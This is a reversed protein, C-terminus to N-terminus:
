GWCFVPALGFFFVFFCGLGDVLLDLIFGVHVWVWLLLVFESAVFYDYAFWFDLANVCFVEGRGM